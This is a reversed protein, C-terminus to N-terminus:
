NCKIVNVNLLKCQVYMFFVLTICYNSWMFLFSEKDKFNEILIYIYM